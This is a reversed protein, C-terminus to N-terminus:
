IVESEIQKIKRKRSGNLWLGIWTNRVLYEYLILMVAITIGLNIIISLWEPLSFRILIGSLAVVLPFHMIYAFYSSDSLYRVWQRDQSFYQRFMGILGFTMLWAFSVVLLDNVFRPVLNSTYLLIGLPFVILLAVLLEMRWHRTDSGTGDAYHFYLTGFFFFVAFYALMHVPVFLNSYHDPEWSSGSMFTRFIFSLPVLWLYRIPSLILWAPLRPLTIHELLYAIATFILILLWIDWLFWLHGFEIGSLWAPAKFVSTNNATSSAPVGATELMEAVKDNGGKRALDVVTGGNVSVVMLDADSDILWRVSEEAGLNVAHELPTLGLFATTNIDRSEFFAELKMPDNSAVAGLINVNPNIMWAYITLFSVIPTFIVLPLLVRRFRNWLLTRLGRRRWQMSTFFGSMLLFAPMSSVAIFSYTLQYANFNNITIKRGAAMETFQIVHAIIVLFLAFARLADFSSLRKSGTDTTDTPLVTTM